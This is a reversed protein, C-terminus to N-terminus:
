LPSFPTLLICETTGVRKTFQPAQFEVRDLRVLIHNYHIYRIRTGSVLISICQSIVQTICEFTFKEDLMTELSIDDSMNLYTSFLLVDREDNYQTNTRFCDYPICRVDNNILVLCRCMVQAVYSPSLLVNVTVAPLVVIIHYAHM